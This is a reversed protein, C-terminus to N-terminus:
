QAEELTRRIEEAQDPRLRGSAAAREATRQAMAVYGAVMEPAEKAL